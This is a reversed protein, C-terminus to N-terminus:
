KRLLIRILLKLRPRITSPGKTKYLFRWADYFFSHDALTNGWKVMQETTYKYLKMKNPYPYDYWEWLPCSKQPTCMQALNNETIYPHDVLEENLYVAKYKCSIRLWMDSDEFINVGVRFPGIEDYVSKRILMSGAWYVYEYACYDEIISEGPPLTTIPRNKQGTIFISFNPYKKVLGVMTELYKPYWKDDADLLAILDGTAMQIAKNRAASVGQNEQECYRIRPDKVSLVIQASNDTSGDNIIIAEWDKYTQNLVSQITGLVYHEKNYLPIIISIKMKKNHM